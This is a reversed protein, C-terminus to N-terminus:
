FLEVSGADMEAQTVPNPRLPLPAIVSDEGDGDFAQFGLRDSCHQLRGRTHAILQTALDHFQLATVASAIHTRLCRVAGAAGPDAVDHLSEAAGTLGEFGELLTRCADGLLTQLRELDNSAVLLHDQMDAAVLPALAPDADSFPM